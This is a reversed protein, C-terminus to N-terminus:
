FYFSSKAFRIHDLQMIHVKIGRLLDGQNYVLKKKPTSLKKSNAIIEYSINGEKAMRDLFDSAKDHHNLVAHRSFTTSDQSKHNCEPCEYFVFSEFNTVDWPNIDPVSHMLTSEEIEKEDKEDKDIDMESPDFVIKPKVQRKSKRMM